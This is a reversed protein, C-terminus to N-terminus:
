QQGPTGDKPTGLKTKLDPLSTSFEIGVLFLRPSSPHTSPVSKVWVVHGEAEIPNGDPAHLDMALHTGVALLEELLLQAGGLSLDKSVAEPDSTVGTRKYRVPWNLQFRPHHRIDPGHFLRRIRGIPVRGRAVLQDERLILLLIVLAVLTLWYLFIVGGGRSYLAM